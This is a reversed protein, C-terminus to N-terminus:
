QALSRRGSSADLTKDLQARRGVIVVPRSRQRFGIHLRGNGAGYMNQGVTLSPAVSFTDTGPDNFFTFPTWTLGNDTSRSHAAIERGSQDAKGLAMVLAGQPTELLAPDPVSSDFYVVEPSWTTGGDSSRRVVVLPSGVHTTGKKYVLVFDGNAAQPVGPFGNYYSDSQIVSRGGINLPGATVADTVQLGNSTKWASVDHVDSFFLSCRTVMPRPRLAARRM